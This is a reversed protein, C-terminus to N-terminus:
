AAEVTVTGLNASVELRGTGAGLTYEGPGTSRLERVDTRSLNANVRVRVDSGRRLRLRVAGAECVVSSEGRTLTAEASLSGAHVRCDLPGEVGELHASGATVECRVPGHVGSVSVSGARAELELPLNPNVRVVVLPWLRSGVSQQWRASFRFTGTVWEEAGVQGVPDCTVVLVEGERRLQHPGDVVAEAVARDGVVKVAGFPSVVRVRRIADSPDGRSESAPDEGEGDGAVRRGLQELRAAAEGPSLRGAAVDELISRREEEVGM